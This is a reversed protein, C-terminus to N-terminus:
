SLKDQLEKKIQTIQEDSAQYKLEICNILACNRYVKIQTKVADPEDFQFPYYFIQFSLMHKDPYSYM